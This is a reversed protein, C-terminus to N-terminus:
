CRLAQLARHDGDVIRVRRAERLQTVTRCAINGAGDQHQCQAGADAACKEHVSVEHGIALKTVQLHRAALRLLASGTACFDFIAQAPIGPRRLQIQNDVFQM